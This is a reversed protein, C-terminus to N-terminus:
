LCNKLHSFQSSDKSKSIKKKEQILNDKKEILKRKKEDLILINSLDINVNREKINKKFLDFNDRIFKLDNM